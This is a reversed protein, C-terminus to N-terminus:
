GGKESTYEHSLQKLLEDAIQISRMAFAADSWQKKGKIEEYSTLLGQMAMAAFYERKTLGQGPPNYDEEQQNIAESSLPFAPQQSNKM